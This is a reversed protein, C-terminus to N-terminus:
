RQKLCWSTFFYLRNGATHGEGLGESGAAAQPCGQKYHGSHNPLALHPPVYDPHCQPIQFSSPYFYDSILGIYAFVHDKCPRM